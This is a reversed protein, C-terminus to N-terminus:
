RRLEALRRVVELNDPGACITQRLPVSVLKAHGALAALAHHDIFETARPVRLEWFIAWGVENGLRWPWVSPGVALSAVYLVAVLLVLRRIM